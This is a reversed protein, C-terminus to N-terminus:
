AASNAGIKMAFDVTLGEFTAVEVHELSSVEQRLAELREELTFMPTKTENAAIAVILRPFTQAARHIIDLHGNTIPDFSGPYIARSVAQLAAEPFPLVGYRGLPGRHHEGEPRRSLDRPDQLLGGFGEVTVASLDSLARAIHEKREELTFLSEKGPNVLIGVSLQFALYKRGRGDGDLLDALEEAEETWEVLVFSM